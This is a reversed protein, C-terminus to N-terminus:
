ILISIVIMFFIFLYYYVFFYPFASWYIVEVVSIKFSLSATSSKLISIMVTDLIVPFEVKFQHRMKKWLESLLSLISKYVHLSPNSGIFMGKIRFIFCLSLFFVCQLCCCFLFPTCSNSPMGCTKIAISVM